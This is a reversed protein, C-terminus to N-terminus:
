VNYGTDHLWVFYQEMHEMHYGHASGFYVLTLAFFSDPGWLGCSTGLELLSGPLCRAPLCPTVDDMSQVVMTSWWYESAGCNVAVEPDIQFSHTYNDFLTLVIKINNVTQNYELNCIHYLMPNYYVHLQTKVYLGQTLM